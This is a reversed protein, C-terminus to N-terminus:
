KTVKALHERRSPCAWLLHLFRGVWVMGRLPTLTKLPLFLGVHRCDRPGIRGGAREEAIADALPCRCLAGPHVVFATM